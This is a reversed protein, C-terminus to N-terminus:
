EAPDPRKWLKVECELTLGTRDQVLSRIEDILQFVETATAAGRNVLFNGHRESIVADGVARGKGGAEDVLQGATKGGSLEPDPNKFVCGASWETVPQVANKRRLYDRTAEQVVLKPMPTFRLVAGSVIADGLKGDRYEPAWDARQIDRFQGDPDVVRIADVVDSMQWLTGDSNKGGANMAIGGGLQGPVGAMKELGSYGLDRAKRCLGPLPAGAWCVLRPDWSPDPQVMQGSPLNTDFESGDSEPGDGSASPRFVRALRETAIVVGPLGRDDIVVNAGGGLIRPEFGYERARVIAERFEDPNAPELLWEVAGGVRM